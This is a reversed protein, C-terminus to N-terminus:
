VTVEFTSNIHLCFYLSCIQCSHDAYEHSPLQCSLLLSNAVTTHLMCVNVFCDHFHLRVLSAPMRPDAQAAQYVQEAVISALQPCTSAYFDPTLQQQGVPASTDWQLERSSRWSSPYKGAAALVLEVESLVLMMLVWFVCFSQVKSTVAAASSSSSSSSSNEVVVVVVVVHHTSSSGMVSFEQIELSGRRSCCLGFASIM